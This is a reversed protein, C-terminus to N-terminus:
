RTGLQERKTDRAARATELSEFGVPKGNCKGRAPEARWGVLQWVDCGKAWAEISDRAQIETSQGHATVTFRQNGAAIHNSTASM